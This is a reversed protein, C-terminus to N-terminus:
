RQAANRAVQCYGTETGYSAIHSYCM